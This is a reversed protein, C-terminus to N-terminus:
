YKWHVKAYEYLVRVNEPEANVLSDLIEASKALYTSNLHRTEYLEIAVNVLSDSSQAFLLVGTFMFVFASKKLM